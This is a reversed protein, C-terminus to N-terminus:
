GLLRIYYGPCLKLYDHFLLAVPIDKTHPHKNWAYEHNQTVWIYSRKTAFLNSHSSQRDYPCGHEMCLLQCEYHTLEQQIFTPQQVFVPIKITIKVTSKVPHKTIAPINTTTKGHFLIKLEVHFNGDDPEHFLM